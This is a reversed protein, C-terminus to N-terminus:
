QNRSELGCRYQLEDFTVPHGDEFADGRHVDGQEVGVGVPHLM